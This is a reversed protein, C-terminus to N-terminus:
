LALAKEYFEVAEKPRNSRRYSEATYYNADPNNSNKALVNRYTDIVEQYEGAKFSKQAKKEVSCALIFVPLALIALGRKM